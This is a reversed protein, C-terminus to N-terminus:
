GECYRSAAEYNHGTPIFACVRREASERGHRSQPPPATGDEQDTLLAWSGSSDIRRPPARLILTLAPKKRVSCHRTTASAVLFFKPPM